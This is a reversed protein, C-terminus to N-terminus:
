TKRLRVDPSLSQGIKGLSAAVASITVLGMRKYNEAGTPVGLLKLSERLESGKPHADGQRLDAVGALAETIKRGDQGLAELWLAVRKIHRLKQKDAEEANKPDIKAKLGGLDIQETVVRHLEKCLRCFDEFSDTYFRHVQRYIEHESPLSLFLPQRFLRGTEQQLLNLNRWLMEEPAMTGAPRALNQSANLDESLGGEPVTNDGAWMKQTWEPLNALDYGLVNILGQSNVGFHLTL